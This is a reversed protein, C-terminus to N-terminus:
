KLKSFAVGIKNNKRGESWVKFNYKNSEPKLPQPLSLNLYIVTCKYGSLLHAIIQSKILFYHIILIPASLSNIMVGSVRELSHRQVKMKLYIDITYKFLFFILNVAKSRKLILFLLATKQTYHCKM